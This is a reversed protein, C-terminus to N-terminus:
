SMITAGILKQGRNNAKAIDRDGIRVTLDKSASERTNREIQSLYPALANTVASYVGSEIGQVIQDNNAVATHGGVSGVMEAGAERALFLQGTEPFGGDAYGGSFKKKAQEASFSVSMGAVNALEKALRQVADIEDNIAGTQRGYASTTDDLSHILNDAYSDFDALIGNYYAMAESAKQEAEKAKVFEENASATISDADRMTNNFNEVKIQAKRSAESIGLVNGIYEFLNDAPLSQSERLAQNYEATAQTSKQIADNLAEFKTASNEQALGFQISANTLEAIVTAKLQAKILDSLISNINEKTDTLKGNPDLDLHLNEIGLNNIFDVLGTFEEFEGITKHSRENLEFVRNIAVQARLADTELAKLRDKGLGIQTQIDITIQSGSEIRAKLDDLEKKFESNNYMELGAQKIGKKYGAVFVAIAVPISLVFGAIGFAVTAGTIGIGAGIITALKNGWEAGNKGISYAGAFEISFGALSMLLGGSVRLAKPLSMLDDVLSAVNKGVKWLLLGTGIAKVAKLAGDFHEKVLEAMKVWKANEDIDAYEFMSAYDEQKKSGAGGSSENLINLEDIGLVLDKYKQASATAEKWSESLPNARKYKTDGNLYAFIQSITDAVQIAKAIISDLVPKVAIALESFASGFQNKMQKTVSALADMKEALEGGVTQSFHYANEFGEKFADSVQKIAFRLMRYFAVSKGKSIIDSIKGWNLLERKADKLSDKLRNYARSYSAVKATDNAKNAELIKNKYDKLQFRLASIESKHVSYFKTTDSVNKGLERFREAMSATANESKTMEEANEKMAIRCENVKEETAKADEQISEFGKSEVKPLKINFGNKFSESLEATKRLENNFNKLAGQTTPANQGLKKMSSILANIGDSAKQSNSQIKVELGEVHIAM